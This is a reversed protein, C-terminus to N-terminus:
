SIVLKLRRSYKKYKTVNFTFKNATSAVEDRAALKTSHNSPTEQRVNSFSVQQMLEWSASFARDVSMQRASMTPKVCTNKCASTKQIEIHECTDKLCALLHLPPTALPIRREWLDLMWLVTHFHHKSLMWCTLLLALSSCHSHSSFINENFIIQPQNQQIKHVFICTQQLIM